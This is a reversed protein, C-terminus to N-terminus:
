QRLRPIFVSNEMLGLYLIVFDRSWVFGARKWM